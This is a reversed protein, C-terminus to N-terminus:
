GALLEAGRDEAPEEVAMSTESKRAIWRSYWAELSLLLWLKNYRRQAGGEVLARFAGADIVRDSALNGRELM